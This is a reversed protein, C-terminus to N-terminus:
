LSAAAGVLALAVLALMAYSIPSLASAGYGRRMVAFGLLLLSALIIWVGLATTLNPPGLAGRFDNDAGHMWPLAHWVIDGLPVVFLWVYLGRSMVEGQGRSFKFIAASAGFMCGLWLFFPGLSVLWRQGREPVWYSMM